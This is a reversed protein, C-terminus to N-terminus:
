NIDKMRYIRRIRFYFSRIKIELSNQPNELSVYKEGVFILPIQVFLGIFFFLLIVFAKKPAYKLEPPVAKDVVILTPISKQEEVKAQEYMPLIFEMIKTQIEIERYYRFYEEMMKPLKEFPVLVNTPYSLSSSNKLENIKEKIFNLQKNITIYQTSNEGYQNKAYEAAIEQKLLESELDGAAQFASVLQEPVAYIGYKKQFLYMSDEATKLDRVNKEYRKAIFVSNNKAQEMNLVINLSDSIEVFYNSIDAAKEPSENIASIELLGNENPEFIVDKQFAKLAKDMDNDKIKYYDMLDFKKIASTMITRSNLLGLIMDQDPSNMGLASSFSLLSNSGSLLSGLGGLSSNQQNALTIRATAKFTEPILFSYVTALICIILLNIILPKKWKYLVFVYDSFSKKENPNSSM